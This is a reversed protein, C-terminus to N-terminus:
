MYVSWGFLAPMVIMVIWLHYTYNQSAYWPSTFQPGKGTGNQQHPNQGKGTQQQM